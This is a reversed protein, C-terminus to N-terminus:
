ETAEEEERRRWKALGLSSNCTGCFLKGGQGGLPVRRGCGGTACIRHVSRAACTESCFGPHANTRPGDGPNTCGSAKCPQKLSSGDAVRKALYCHACKLGGQSGPMAVGKCGHFCCRRPQVHRADCDEEYCKVSCFRQESKLSAMKKNVIARACRKCAPALRAGVAAGAAAGAGAAVDARQEQQEM